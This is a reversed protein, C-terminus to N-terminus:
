EEGQHEGHGAGGRLLRLGETHDGHGVVDGEGLSGEVEGALIEIGVSGQVLGAVLGDGIEPVLQVLNGSLFGGQAGFLGALFDTEDRVRVQTRLFIGQIDIVLTDGHFCRGEAAEKIGDLGELLHKRRFDVPALLDMCVPDERIHADQVGRTEVVAADVQIGAAMEPADLLGLAIDVDGGGVFEVAEVPVEGLVLAPAHLDFLVGLERFHTGPAVSGADALVEVGVVADAVAAEVGLVLHALDHGIGGLAVDGDDGLDVQGAVHDGGEGGIRFQAAGATGILNPGAPAHGFIDKAYALFLGEGEQLIDEGLDHVDERGLVDM